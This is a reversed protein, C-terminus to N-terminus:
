FTLCTTCQVSLRHAYKKNTLKQKHRATFKECTSCLSTDTFLKSVTEYDPIDVICGM